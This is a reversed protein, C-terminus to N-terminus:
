LLLVTNPKVFEVLIPIIPNGGIWATGQKKGENISFLGVGTKIGALLQDLDKNSFLVHHQPSFPNNYVQGFVYCIKVMVLFM